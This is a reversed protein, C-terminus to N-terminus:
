SRRHNRSVYIMNRSSSDSKTYVSELQLSTEGQPKASFLLRPNNEYSKTSMSLANESRRWKIRHMKVKGSVNAEMQNNEERFIGHEYLFKVFIKYLLLWYALYM